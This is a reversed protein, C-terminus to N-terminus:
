EKTFNTIETLKAYAQGSDIAKRALEIGVKISKALGSVYIAAGANLLVVNYKSWKEQGMLIQLAAVKSEEVNSVVIEEKKARKLKFDMPSIEYTRIKSDKLESVKTESSISIEDLGDLGHVVLAHKTGLNKLVEAMVETLDKSYVGLIQYPASAPNTLPGLINFITRIGLEKRTPMAYKMAPHFKPAFMFGFGVKDICLSVKEPDLDIKIGFSELLDASGCKSSVSRNGHKAINVGAGAAVIASVTSVNFTHSLDGGTGCTDVLNEARPHIKNAHKRMSEAFGTIEDITEGKMRLSTLLAAIQSPSAQGSMITECTLVSEERTLNKKDIM